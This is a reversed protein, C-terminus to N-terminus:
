QEVTGEGAGDVDSFPQSPVAFMPVKKIPSQDLECRPGQSSQFGLNTGNTLGFHNKELLAVNEAGPLPRSLQSSPPINSDSTGNVTSSAFGANLVPEIHLGANVAAVKERISAIAEPNNEYPREPEFANSSRPLHQSSGNADGSVEAVSGDVQADKAEVDKSGPSQLAPNNKKRKAEAILRSFDDRNRNTWATGDFDKRMVTSLSTAARGGQTREWQDLERLLERESRPNRSDCNANWLNVWETHRKIMLQKAGWNPLGLEKLKARLKADNLLSYNLESIREQSRPPQTSSPRSGGFISVPTRLKARSAQKQEDECKDLHPDVAEIKMHKGCGLPCEVLGDNPEKAPSYDSGGESDLIEITEPDSTQSAALRRSKSRTTRGDEQSPAADDSDPVTRKRKGRSKGRGTQVEESERRAMDLAAPRAALFRTVVEQLAYNNRLKSAQDQTRCSPCRGDTSLATRICKSCFTHCCSTIMPTDYFEKCIECHLANELTSFDKLPTDLWDSSDPIDYAGDM